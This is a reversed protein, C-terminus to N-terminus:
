KSHIDKESLRLGWTMTNSSYPARRIDQREHDVRQMLAACLGALLWFQTFVRGSGLLTYDVMSHIVLAALGGLIGVGAVWVTDSPAQDVIRWAQILLIVLFVVFAGLGLLGTEAAILLFANHVIPAYYNWAAADAQDYGPSVLTYNNLGIGIVPNDRMIALAGEALTIRSSASGQDDGTLRSLILDTGFLAVGLLVLATAGAIVIAAKTSIRTRRVALVLVLCITVLFDGWAARSLSFILASGILCLTITALIKVSPRTKSFLLALAFPVGTSLYIALTNPSGLTGQVRSVLGVGLQQKHIGATEVLFDLGLPHGTVGQYVGVLAQFVMGLMLGTIVITLDVDNGISSAVVWCLLLLKVMAVLQFLALDGDKAALLSFSSAVLWALAPVTILSFPSIKAQRRSLKGLLILLLTLALVDSLNIGVGTIYSIHEPRIALAKGWYFPVTFAILLLLIRKPRGVALALVAAAPAAVLTIKWKDPVDLLLSRGCLIAVVFCWAYQVIGPSM